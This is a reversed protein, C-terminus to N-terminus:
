KKGEKSYETWQPLTILKVGSKHMDKSVDRALNELFFVTQPRLHCIVAAMGSEKAMNLAKTMQVAIKARDPENDLFRSNFASELGASVAAKYAVSKPSTRSDFFFLKREALVNMVSKMVEEDATAKSGRHNNVGYAGELSDLLPLLAGRVEEESMGAAIIYRGGYGTRRDGDPDAEAQMPVHVLFPIGRSKLIEATEFSHRLNPIIAWTIPLDLSLVARALEMNAGCDDLVLAIKPISGEDLAGSQCDGSVADASKRSDTFGAFFLCNVIM